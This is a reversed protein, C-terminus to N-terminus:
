TTRAWVREGIDSKSNGRSMAVTSALVWIEIGCCACAKKADETAFGDLGTMRMDHKM